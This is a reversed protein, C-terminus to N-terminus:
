IDYVLCFSKKGEPICLIFDYVKNHGITEYSLEIAPFNKIIEEKEYDKLM